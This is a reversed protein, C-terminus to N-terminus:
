SEKEYIRRIDLNYQKAANVEDDFKPEPIHKTWWKKDGDWRYKLKKAYDRENYTAMCRILIKETTANTVIENIDYHSVVRLMTMVDFLARHSFPNVFGHEASVHILSQGKIKEPYTVDAMSCLWVKDDHTISARKMEEEFFGKDFQANHALFYDARRSFEHLAVMANNIPSAHTDLMKQSIGTIREIEETIAPYNTDTTLVSFAAVPTSTETDWLVAGIEIIRDQEKKLGTTEFDIGCILVV